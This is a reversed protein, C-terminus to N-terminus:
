KPLPVNAVRGQVLWRKSGCQRLWPKWIAQDPGAACARQEQRMGRGGAAITAGVLGHRHMRVYMLQADRRMTDSQNEDNRMAYSQKEDHRMADWRTEDRPRATGAAPAQDQLRGSHGSLLLLVAHEVLHLHTTSYAAAAHVSEAGTQVTSYAVTDCAIYRQVRLQPAGHRM